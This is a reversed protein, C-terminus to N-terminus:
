IAMREQVVYLSAPTEYELSQHPRETNHFDIYRALAKRLARPNTYENLYIEEYKLSRFFREIHINDLARGKSDMSVTVKQEKLLGIYQENTFQCGQDSNVIQPKAKLFAQRLCSLVFEKELTASLEWDVIYRSYMGIIAFLFMFGPGMRIYTIDICWIQDPREVELNRLLYPRIYQRQFMKSLNAKPYIASLGMARMLRLVHGKGIRVSRNLDRTIRRYGYFPHATYIEDIRHMIKADRGYRPSPKKKVYLGTRNIGLLQAQRKASIRKETRNCLAM